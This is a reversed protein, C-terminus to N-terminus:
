TPSENLLTVVYDRLTALTQFPSNRQSMARESALTVAAGLKSELQQEVTVILNVLGLSDVQGGSGFLPQNFDAVVPPLHPRTANFELLAEHLISDLQQSTIMTSPSLPLRKAEGAQKSLM